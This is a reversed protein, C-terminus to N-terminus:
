EPVYRSLGTATEYDSLKSLVWTKFASAEGTTMTTVPHDDDIVRGAANRIVMDAIAEIEGEENLQIGIRLLQYTAPVNRTIVSM